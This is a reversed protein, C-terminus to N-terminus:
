GVARGDPLRDGLYRRLGELLNVEPLYGLEIRARTIDAGSHRVDGPRPETHVAAIRTGLLGNLIGVLAL